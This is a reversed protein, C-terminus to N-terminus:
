GSERTDSLSQTPFIIKALKSTLLSKKFQMLPSAMIYAYKTVTRLLTQM